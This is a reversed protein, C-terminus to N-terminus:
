FGCLAGGTAASRVLERTYPESPCNLIEKPTGAEIIRGEFMVILHTAVRDVIGLDHTILLCTRNYKKVSRCLLSLVIERSLSDLNATPEDAVLLDAGLALARAIVARQAQGGSLQHPYSRYYLKPDLEVEELLRHAERRGGCCDRLQNGIRILPHLSSKAEQRILAATGPLEAKTFSTRSEDGLNGAFFGGLSTKGCGSEGVLAVISGQEINLSLDTVARVEPKSGSYIINLNECCCLSM